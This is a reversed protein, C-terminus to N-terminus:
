YNTEAFNLEKQRLSEILDNILMTTSPKRNMPEPDFDIGHEVDNIPTAHVQFWSHIQKTARQIRPQLWSKGLAPTRVFDDNEGVQHTQFWSNITSQNKPEDLTPLANSARTRRKYVVFMILMSIAMIPFAISLITKTNMSQTSQTSNTQSDNDAVAITGDIPKVPNQIEPVSPIVPETPIDVFGAHDTPPEQKVSEITPGDDNSNAIPEPLSATPPIIRATQIPPSPANQQLPAPAQSFQEVAQNSIHEKVVTQPMEVRVAAVQQQAPIDEQLPVEIIPKQTVSKTAVPKKQQSPKSVPKPNDLFTPLKMGLMKTFGFKANLKMQYQPVNIFNHM